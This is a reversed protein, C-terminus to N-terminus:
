PTPPNHVSFSWLIFIIHDGGAGATRNTGRPSSRKGGHLNQHHQHQQPGPHRRTEGLGKAGRLLDQRVPPAPQPPLGKPPGGGRKPVAEEYGALHQEPGPAQGDPHYIGGRRDKKAKQRIKAAGEAAEGAFVGGAM